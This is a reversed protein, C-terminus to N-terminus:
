TSGPSKRLESNEQILRQKELKLESIEQRLSSNNETLKCDLFMNMNM